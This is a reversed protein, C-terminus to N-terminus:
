DTASQVVGSRVTVVDVFALREVGGKAVVAAWHHDPHNRGKLCRNSFHASPIQMLRKKAVQEFVSDFVM